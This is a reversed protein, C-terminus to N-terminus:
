KHTISLETRIARVVQSFRDRDLRDVDIFAKHYKKISGVQSATVPVTESSGGKSNYITITQGIFPYSEILQYALEHCQNDRLGLNRFKPSNM